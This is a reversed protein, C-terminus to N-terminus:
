SERKSVIVNLRWASLTGLLGMLVIGGFYLSYGPKGPYRDLLAGNILPLYIDPSYGILSIVGISLGKIRTPIECSDLTAWFIGRIAYTMLGIFMVVALLAGISADLPLAIL